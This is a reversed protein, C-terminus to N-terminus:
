LQGGNKWHNGYDNRHAVPDSQELLADGTNQMTKKKKELLLRCVLNTLSQLESTHEESRRVVLIEGGADLILNNRAQRLDRVQLHNRAARRLTVLTAGFIKPLDRAFESNCVNEFATDLARVILNVHINLQEIRQGVGM